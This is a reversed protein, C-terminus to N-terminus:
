KGSPKNEDPKTGFLEDFLEGPATDDSEVIDTGHLLDYSSSIWSGGKVESLEDQSAHPSLPKGSDVWEGMPNEETIRWVMNARAPLKVKAM